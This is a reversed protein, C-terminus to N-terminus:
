ASGARRSRGRVAQSVHGPHRRAARTRTAYLDRTTINATLDRLFSREIAQFERTDRLLKRNSRKWVRIMGRIFAWQKANVPMQARQRFDIVFWQDITTSELAAIPTTPGVDEITLGYAVPSGLADVDLGLGQM